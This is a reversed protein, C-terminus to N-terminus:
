LTNDNNDHHVPNIIDPHTVTSALVLEVSSLFGRSLSFLFCLNENDADSDKM